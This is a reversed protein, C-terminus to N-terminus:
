PAGLRGDGKEDEVDDRGYASRDGCSLCGEGLDNCLGADKGALLSGIGGNESGELAGSDLLGGASAGTLV